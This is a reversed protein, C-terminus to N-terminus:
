GNELVNWISETSLQLYLIKKFMKAYSEYFYM